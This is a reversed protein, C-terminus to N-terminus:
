KQLFDIEESFRAIKEFIQLGQTVYSYYESSSEESLLPILTSQKSELERRITDSSKMLEKVFEQLHSLEDEVPEIAYIIDTLETHRSESLVKVATDLKEKLSNLEQFCQKNPKESILLDCVKSVHDFRKDKM